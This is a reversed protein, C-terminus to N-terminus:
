KPTEVRVPNSFPDSANSPGPVYDQGAIYRSIAKQYEGMNLRVIHQNANGLNEQNLSQYLGRLLNMEHLILFAFLISLAVFVLFPFSIKKLPNTM